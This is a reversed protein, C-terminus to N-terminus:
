QEEQSKARQKRQIQALPEKLSHGMRAMARIGIVDGPCESIIGGMSESMFTAWPALRAPQQLQAM